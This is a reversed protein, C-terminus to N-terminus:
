SLHPRAKLGDRLSALRERELTRRTKGRACRIDDPSRTTPTIPDFSLMSQKM